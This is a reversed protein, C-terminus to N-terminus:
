PATELGPIGRTIYSLLQDMLGNIEGYHHSPAARLTKEDQVFPGPTLEHLCHTILADATEPTTELHFQLGIVNAGVQFAQHKCAESEALHVAGPPLDFTEGHWHFANIRDPFPFVDEANDVTRVPFWGIEKQRGPYVKAGLASAILQAGLCVGLIPKGAQLTERIFQKEAVLWPHETEDNVSMPGGMLILLDFDEQPPLHWNGFFGTVTTRAKRVGCWREM